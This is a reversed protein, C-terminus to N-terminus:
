RTGKAKEAIAERKAKEAAGKEQKERMARQGFTEAKGGPVATLSPRSGGKSEEERKPAKPGRKSEEERRPTAVIGGAPTKALPGNTRRWLKATQTQTHPTSEFVVDIPDTGVDVAIYM